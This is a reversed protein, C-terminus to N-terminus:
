NHLEAHAARRRRGLIPRWTKVAIQLYLIEPADKQETVENPDDYWRVDQPVGEM